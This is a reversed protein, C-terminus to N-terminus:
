FIVQITNKVADTGLKNRLEDAKKNLECEKGADSVFAFEDGNDNLVQIDGFIDAAVSKANKDIVRVYLKVDDPNVNTLVGGEEWFPAGLGNHAVIDIVDAVVASATPMKGAGKGYFMVDGTASGNVLIGNFVGEVDSLANSSPLM